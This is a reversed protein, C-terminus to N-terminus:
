EYKYWVEEGDRFRVMIGAPTVSSVIFFPIGEEELDVCTGPCVTLSGANKVEIVAMKKEQMVMFGKMRIMEMDIGKGGATDAGLFDRIAPTQAFPDRTIRVPVDMNEVAFSCIAPMTMLLMVGLFCFAIRKM